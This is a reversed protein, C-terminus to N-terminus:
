ITWKYGGATGNRKISNMINSHSVGVQREAERLSGFIMIIQNTNKDIMKVSISRNNEYNIKPKKLGIKFAHKLNESSTVWELNYFCNNRKNGDIHNVQNKNGKNLIFANAVLRHVKYMKYVGDKTLRVCKYGLVLAQKLIIPERHNSKNGLSKVRGLNSVQYLGEYGSIDKWIENMFEIM